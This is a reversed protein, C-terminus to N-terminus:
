RRLKFRRGNWVYRLPASRFFHRFADADPGLDASSTYTVDLTGPDDPDPSISVFRILSMRRLMAASDTKLVSPELFDDFSPLRIVSEASVPKWLPTYFSIRSDRFDGVQVSRILGVLSGGGRLALLILDTTGVDSTAVSLRDTDFYLTRSRGGLRNETWGPIGSEYFDILDQRGSSSILTLLTDPMTILLDKVQLDAAGASIGALMLFFVFFRKM